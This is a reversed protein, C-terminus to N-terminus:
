MAVEISKQRKEGRPARCKRMNCETREAFNENGCEVCIWNSEEGERHRKTPKENRRPAVPTDSLMPKPARCSRMNCEQRGAFNENGCQLCKWNLEQRPEQCKSMNCRSRHAYNSNGCLRCIWDQGELGGKNLGNPHHQPMAGSRPPPEQRTKQIAGPRPEGCTRKNCSTRQPFNENGCKPCMWNDPNELGPRAAGCNSRNCVLRHPYNDNLCASCIWPTDPLNVTPKTIVPNMAKQKPLRCSGRNCVTRTPFNENGCSKCIWNSGDNLPASVGFLPRPLRCTRKNCADRTPYNENHCAPCIWNEATAPLPLELSKPRAKDCKRSNCVSRNPFNDNGCWPCDWNAGSDPRPAGCKRMNCVMRGGFNQNGCQPCEWDDGANSNARVGQMAKPAPALAMHEFGPRPLGCTRRNCVTRTGYNDNSCTLCIWNNEPDPTAPTGTNNQVNVDEFGPRVVRCTRRNCVTRTDYNENGCELCVWMPLQAAADVVVVNSQQETTAM